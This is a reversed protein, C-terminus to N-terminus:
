GLHIMSIECRSGLRLVPGWTGSGPSVYLTLGGVNYLGCITPFFRRVLLNFPMIQGNHTHGCLMLDVGWDAADQAGDPRHYLLIRFKDALPELQQLVSAVQNRAEADDIGLLQIDGLDYSDNRLVHVNLNRLRECIATLDVYREHNGIIFYTPANLEGLSSLEASSIDRHDILDGTILVYDPELANVRTVIRQLFRTSRSGVHVDSIQAFTTEKLAAPAAINLHKVTLSQASWLGYIASDRVTM